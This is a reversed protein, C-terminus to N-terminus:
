TEFDSYDTCDILDNKYSDESIEILARFVAAADM